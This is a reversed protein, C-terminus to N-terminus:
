MEHVAVATVFTGSLFDRENRMRFGPEAILKLPRDKLEPFLDANSRQRIVKVQPPMGHFLDLLPIKQVFKCCNVCRVDLSDPDVFDVDVDSVTLRVPGEERDYPIQLTTCDDM